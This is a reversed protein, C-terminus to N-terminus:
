RVGTMQGVEAISDTLSGARDSHLILSTLREAARRRDRTRVVFERGARGAAIREEAALDLLEGLAAALAAADGPPSLRGWPRRIVEPLGVYDSAVVPVEMALAEGAILPLVDRDGDAAPVAPIAVVDAQELANRVGAAGQAGAWVIRGQLGLSIAQAKLEDRLPGDGVIVLRELKNEGQLLAAADLLYRFGKKEVLRGVALVARGGPPGASRTFFRHDVGMTIVHVRDAAGAGAVERLTAVSYECEGAAVTARSLKEGLNAPQRYIDYAHTM